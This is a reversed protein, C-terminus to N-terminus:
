LWATAPAGRRRRSRRFPLPFFSKALTVIHRQGYQSVSISLVERGPWRFFLAPQLSSCAFCKAFSASFCSSSFALRIAKNRDDAAPLERRWDTSTGDAAPRELGGDGPGM